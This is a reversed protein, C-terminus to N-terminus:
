GNSILSPNKLVLNISQHKIYFHATYVSHTYTTGIMQFFQNLISILKKLNDAWLGNTVIDNLVVSCVRAWNSM